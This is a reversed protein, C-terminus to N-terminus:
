RSCLLYMLQIVHKVYFGAVFKPQSRRREVRLDQAETVEPDSDSPKINSAQVPVNTAVSPGTQVKNSIETNARHETAQLLVYLTKVYSGSPTDTPMSSVVSSGESGTRSSCGSSGARASTFIANVQVVIQRQKIALFM